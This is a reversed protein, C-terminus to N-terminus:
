KIYLLSNVVNWKQKPNAISRISGYNQSLLAKQIAPTDQEQHSYDLSIFCITIM